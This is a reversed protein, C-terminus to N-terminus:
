KNKGATKGPDAEMVIETPVEIPGSAAESFTNNWVIKMNAFQMDAIKGPIRFIVNFNKSEGKTLLIAKNRKNENAFEQGSEIKVALKSPNVIGYFDGTYTVKFEAFTEATTKKLNLLHCQFPGTTFDNTSAPLNFDTASYNTGNAPIKYFGKIIFRFQDAQLGEGEKIDLVKSEKEFPGIIMDKDTPHYENREYKFISESPKYLIYDGTNNTIKIKFKSFAAQAVADVIEITIDNTKIPAVDKYYITYKPDNKKQSFALTAIMLVALFLTIKKM